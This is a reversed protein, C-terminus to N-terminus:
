LDGGDDVKSAKMILAEYEPQRHALLANVATAGQDDFAKMLKFNELLYAAKVIFVASLGLESQLVENLPMVLGNAQLYHCLREKMGREEPTLSQFFFDMLMSDSVKSM